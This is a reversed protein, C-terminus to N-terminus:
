PTKRQKANKESNVTRDSQFGEETKFPSSKGTKRRGGGANKKQEVNIKKEATKRMHETKKKKGV